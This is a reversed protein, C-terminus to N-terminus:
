DVMEMQMTTRGSGMMSHDMLGTSNGEVMGRSRIGLDLMSQEM